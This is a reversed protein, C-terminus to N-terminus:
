IDLYLKLRKCVTAFYNKQLEKKEAKPQTLHKAQGGCLSAGTSYFHSYEKLRRYRHTFDQQLQWRRSGWGVDSRGVKNLAWAVDNGWAGDCDVARLGKAISLVREIVDSVCGLGTAGRAAGNLRRMLEAM